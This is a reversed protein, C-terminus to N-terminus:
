RAGSNAACACWAQFRLRPAAEGSVPAFAETVEARAGLLEEKGSTQKWERSRLVLRMLFITVLAAPATVGLAVGFSVGAGTLPSRILMAFAGLMMAIIGGAATCVGHSTYKAELIFLGLAM